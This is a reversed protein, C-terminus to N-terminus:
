IISKLCSPGEPSWELRWPGAVKVRSQRHCCASDGGELEVDNPQSVIETQTTSDGSLADHVLLSNAQLARRLRSM